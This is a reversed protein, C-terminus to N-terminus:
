WARSTELQQIPRKMAGDSKDRNCTRCMAQLNHREYQLDPRISFPIKHDVQAARPHDRPLSLDLTIGCGACNPEEFLVQARVRRWRAGNRARERPQNM